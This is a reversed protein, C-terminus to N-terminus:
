TMKQLLYTKSEVVVVSKNNWLMYVNQSWGCDLQPMACGRYPVSAAHCVRSVDCRHCTVGTACRVQLVQWDTSHHCTTSHQRPVWLWVDAWHHDDPGHCRSRDLLLATSKAVWLRKSKDGEEVGSQCGCWSSDVVDVCAVRRGVSIVVIL